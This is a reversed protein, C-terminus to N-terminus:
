PIDHITLSAGGEDVCPSIALYLKKYAPLSTGGVIGYDGNADQDIGNGSAICGLLQSIENATHLEINTRGPVNPLWLIGKYEAGLLGTFTKDFESQGIAKRGIAYTAAPIRVHDPNAAGRELTSCIPRGEPDSLTGWTSNPTEAVRQLFFNQM